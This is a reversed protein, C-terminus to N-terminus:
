PTTETVSERRERLHYLMRETPTLRLVGFRKVVAAIREGEADHAQHQLWWKEVAPLSPIFKPNSKQVKTCLSCLMETLDDIQAAMARQVHTNAETKVPLHQGGWDEHNRPEYCPM